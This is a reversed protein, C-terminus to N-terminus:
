RSAIWGAIAENPAIVAVKAYEDAAFGAGHERELQGM